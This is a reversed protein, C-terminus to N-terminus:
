LQVTVTIQVQDGSILSAAANLMDAFVMTGGSSANFVGAKHLNVDQDATFTKTLTYTATGNTHAYTAQVRALTGSAIEGTLDIDTEEPPTTNSSVGLWNAAAYDGTGTSATDGMVRAQFDRGGLTRM